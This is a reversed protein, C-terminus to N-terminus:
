ESKAICDEIEKHNIVHLFTSGTKESLHKDNIIEQLCAMRNKEYEDNVYVNPTLRGYADEIAECIKQIIHPLIDRAEQKFRYRAIERSVTPFHKEKVM